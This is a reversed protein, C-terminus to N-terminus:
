PRALRRRTLLRGGGLGAATGALLAGGGVALLTLPAAGDRGPAIGGAGRDTLESPTNSQVHLPEAPEDILRASAAAPAALLVAITAAVSTFTRVSM